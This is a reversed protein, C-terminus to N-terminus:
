WSEINQVKHLGKAGQIASKTGKSKGKSKGKNAKSKGKGSFSPETKSWSKSQKGKGSSQKGANKSANCEQQFHAAGCKVRPSSSWKGKGSSLSLSLFNVAGVDMPDSHGRSGKDSLKSDRIRLGFRAEVYTVVELRADEFTRLRTSNLFLHKEHEEPLLAELGALRTEDDLKDKLKEWMSNWFLAGDLLFSRKFFTERGEEQPDYRRHLRRWAEFPNKRSNAVIDNAEYSTLCM